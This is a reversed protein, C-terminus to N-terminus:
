HTPPLPDATLALPSARQLLLVLWQLFTICVYEPGFVRLSLTLLFLMNM